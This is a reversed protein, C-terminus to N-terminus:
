ETTKEFPKVPEVHITIHTQPGFREQLAKEIFHTRSHAKLLSIEGDMRIHFEIAIQNGIRLTHLNHPDSVDPYSHVIDLIEKEIEEPLSVETLEGFCQRLLTWAMRIIFGGVVVSAVPDLVTWRHGLLIAGGIGVFTGLSSLADSRHHWANAIVAPSELAMGKRRTYQYVLEKLVISVVAAVLALTGPAPLEKGKSWAVIDAGAHYLIGGAVAVLALGIFMTALTEFKGYGYEYKKDAKRASIHVFVIVIADTVLDSLSHIADAVMASSHGVIGAFFKFFTLLINVASGVLTVKDIEKERAGAKM